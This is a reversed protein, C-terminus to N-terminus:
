KSALWKDLQSQAEEILKDSGAVKMKELFEPMVKEPDVAGSELSLIYENLVASVSAIENQVPTSDFSFGLIPSTKANDNIEKTKEWDTKEQGEKFYALFNNGYM